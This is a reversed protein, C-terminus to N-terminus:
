KGRDIGFTISAIDNGRKIKIEKIRGLVVGSPKTLILGLKERKMKTEYGIGVMVFGKLVLACPHVLLIRFLVFCGNMKLNKM